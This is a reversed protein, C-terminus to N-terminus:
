FAFKILSSFMVLYNILKVFQEYLSPLASLRFESTLDDAEIHKDVESFIYEIVRFHLSEVFQFILKCLYLIM